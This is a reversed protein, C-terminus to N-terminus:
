RRPSSSLSTLSFCVLVTLWICVTGTAAARRVQCVWLYLCLCPGLAHTDLRGEGASLAVLLISMAKHLVELALKVLDADGSGEDSGEGNVGRERQGEGNVGRERQGEAALVSLLLEMLEGEVIARATEKVVGMNGHPFKDVREERAGGMCQEVLACAGHLFLRGDKSSIPRTLPSQAPLHNGPLRNSLTSTDGKGEFSVQQGSITSWEGRVCGCVNRALEMEQHIDIGACVCDCMCVFVSRVVGVASGYCLSRVFSAPTALSINLQYVTYM